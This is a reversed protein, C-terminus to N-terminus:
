QRCELLSGLDARAGVVMHLKAQCALVFAPAQKVGWREALALGEEDYVPIDLAGAANLEKVSQFLASREDAKRLSEFDRLLLVPRLRIRGGSGRVFDAARRAAEAEGAGEGGLFLYLVREASPGAKSHASGSGAGPLLALFVVGVRVYGLGRM